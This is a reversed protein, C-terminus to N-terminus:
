LSNGVMSVRRAPVILIEGNVANNMAEANTQFEWRGEGKAIDTYTFLSYGRSSSGRNRVSVLVSGDPLEEVKSEDAGTSPLQM